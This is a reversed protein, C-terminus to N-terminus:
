VLIRHRFIKLPKFIKKKEQEGSSSNEQEALASSYHEGVAYEMSLTRKGFNSTGGIARLPISAM